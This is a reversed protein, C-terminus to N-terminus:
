NAEESLGYDEGSRSERTLLTLKGVAAERQVGANCGSRANHWHYYSTRGVGALRALRWSWFAAAWEHVSSDGDRTVWPNAWTWQVIGLEKPYPCNSIRHTHTNRSKTQIVLVRGFPLKLLVLGSWHDLPVLSPAQDAWTWCLSWKWSFFPVFTVNQKHFYVTGFEM